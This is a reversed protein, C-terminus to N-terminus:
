QKYKEKSYLDERQLSWTKYLGNWTIWHGWANHTIIFQLAGNRVLFETISLELHRARWRLRLVAPWCHLRHVAPWWHLRHVAPWWHLRHVAPWCRLRHVARWRWGEPGECHYHYHTVISTKNQETGALGRRASSMDNISRAYGFTLYWHWPDHLPCKFQTYMRTKHKSM